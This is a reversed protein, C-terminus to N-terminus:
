DAYSIKVISSNLRTSKRDRGLVDGECTFVAHTPRLWDDGTKVWGCGNAEAEQETIAAVEAESDVVAHLRLLLTLPVDPQSLTDSLVLTTTPIRTSTPSCVVQ